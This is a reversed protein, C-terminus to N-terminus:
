FKKEQMKMLIPQDKSNIGSGRHLSGYHYLFDDAVNKVKKFSITSAANDLYIYDDNKGYFEINM